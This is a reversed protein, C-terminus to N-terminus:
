WSTKWAQTQAAAVQWYMDIVSMVARIAPQPSAPRRMASRPHRGTRCCCSETAERKQWAVVRPARRRPQM